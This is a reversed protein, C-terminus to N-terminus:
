LSLFFNQIKGPADVMKTEGLNVKKRLCIVFSIQLKKTKDDIIFNKLSMQITSYCLCYM